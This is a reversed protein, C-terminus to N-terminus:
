NGSTQKRFADAAGKAALHAARLGLDLCRQRARGVQLGGWADQLHEAGYSVVEQPTKDQLEDIALDASAMCLSCGYGEFWGRTMRLEGNRDPAFALTMTISDGCMPNEGPATALIETTTQGTPAGHHVLAKSRQIVRQDIANM